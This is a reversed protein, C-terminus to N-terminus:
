WLGDQKASIPASTHDQHPISVCSAISHMATYSNLEEMPYWVYILEHWFHKLEM